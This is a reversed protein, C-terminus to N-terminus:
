KGSKEGMWKRNWETARVWHEAFRSFHFISGFFIRSDGSYTYIRINLMLCVFRKSGNWIENLNFEIHKQENNNYQRRVRFSFKTRINEVYNKVEQACKMHVPEHQASLICVSFFDNNEFLRGFIIQWKRDWESKQARESQSTSKACQMNRVLFRWALPTMFSAFLLLIPKTDMETANQKSTCIMHYLPEDHIFRIFELNACIGSPLIGFM